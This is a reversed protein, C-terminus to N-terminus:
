LVCAGTESLDEGMGMLSQIFSTLVVDDKSKCIDSLVEYFGQHPAQETPAASSTSTPSSIEKMQVAKVNTQTKLTKMVSSLKAVQLASKEGRVVIKYERDDKLKQLIPEINKIDEAEVYLIEKRKMGTIEVEDYTKTICDFVCCTKDGSEGFAHQVSSGCYYLNQKVTQKDHIHGSICLPYDDKWEEVGQAVIPGMKAGDLLQHALVLDVKTWDDIRSLAEVLRGDPVYPCFSVKCCNVIELQVPKDIVTINPKNKLVNMWHEDSCFISNNIADHNGVLVYTPKYSSCMTIFALASNLASTHIKEHNHLVDGMIVIGALDQHSSLIYKEVQETFTASQPITDVRFHPDGIIFLKSM